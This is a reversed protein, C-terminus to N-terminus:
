WPHCRPDQLRHPLCHEEQGEGEPSNKGRGVLLPEAVRTQLLWQQEKLLLTEPSSMGTNWNSGGTRTATFLCHEDNSGHKFKQKTKNKYKLRMSQNPCTAGIYGITLKQEIFQQYM